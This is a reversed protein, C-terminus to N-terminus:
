EERLKVPMLIYLYDRDKESTFIGPSEQGILRVQITEGEIVRLAELLYLANFGIEMDEYSKVRKVPIKECASGLGASSSSIDLTEKELHLKVLRSQEESLLSVRKIASTFESKGVEFIISYETPIVGKYDPFKAEILQSFFSFGSAVFFVRSGEVGIKIEEEGELIKVLQRAARLPLLVKFPKCSSPSIVKLYSLRRGDTAVASLLSKEKDEEQPSGELLVSNLNHRVEDQSASFMTKILIKRLTDQSLSLITAAASPIEPFDEVPMTLLTFLIGEKKIFCKGGDAELHFEGSPLERLISYFKGGPLCISGEEEVTAEFFAKVTTELNTSVVEVKGEKTSILLHSLVPLTKSTIAIQAMGIARLAKEKECIIKM